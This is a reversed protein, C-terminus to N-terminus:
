NPEVSGGKYYRPNETLTKVIMESIECNRDEPADIRITAEKNGKPITWFYIEPKAPYRSITGISPIITEPALVSYNSTKFSLRVWFSTHGDEVAQVKFVISEGAKIKEGTSSAGVETLSIRASGKNDKKQQYTGAYTDKLKGLEGNTFKITNVDVKFRGATVVETVYGPSSLTFVVDAQSASGLTKYEVEHYLPDAGWVSVSSPTWPFSPTFENKLLGQSVITVPTQPKLPDDKYAFLVTKNADQNVHDYVVNSWKNSSFPMAQGDVFGVDRFHCPVLRTHEYEDAEFELEIEDPNSTTTVFDLTVSKETPLYRYTGSVPGPQIGETTCILGQATIQILPYSDPYIRGIDEQMFFHVSLNADSALPIPTTFSLNEFEKARFHEFTVSDKQFYSNYVWVTTASIDRNTKFYCSVSRWTRENQDTSVPLQSYEAWTLSRVFQFAQKGAYGEHNSISTGTVVPLNNNPVSNDPTLTMDEAEITFDLPFVSPLLGEPIMFEIVQESGKTKAIFPKSCKVKLPQIPQITITVDRYLRKNNGYIGTVRLVQTRVLEAPPATCFRIPRWGENGEVESPAGIFPYPNDPDDPNPVQYIVPEGGDEVPLLDVRVSNPEVDTEGDHSFHVSLVDVPNDPGHESTFTQALWPKITLRGVGDSIDTVGSTTVDASVDASGASTAAKAPTDQGRSLIKNIVIKYKFNRYIPYYSSEWEDEGVKHTEMLDVKYYYYGRNESDEENNYYGYVIVFTPQLLASPAPREYLYVAGGSAPAVGEGLPNGTFAAAPPVTRNFESSPLNGKYGSSELQPFSLLHYNEIFGSNYPVYTGRAPVNIVAYSIPTFNSGEKNEVVIKSWNRVLAINQFASSTVLDAVYGTGGEPIVNDDKDIYEGAANKKARIGQPLSIMQWYGKVDPETLLVPLVDSDWGFSLFEPGNGLFHVTRRSEAMTLQATFKFKPVTHEEVVPDGHEDLIPNDQADTVITTYTYTGDPVSTAPVYEKLYGSGGFVALYLTQLDDVGDLARTVPMDVPISFSVEVKEGEPFPRAARDREPNEERSCSFSLITFLILLLWRRM